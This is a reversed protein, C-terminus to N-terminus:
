ATVPVPTGPQVPAPPAPPDPVLVTATSPRSTVSPGAPPTGTATATNVVKGANSDAQTLTYSATCTEDQGPNLTAAPCSVASLGPLKDNVKVSTLSVNGTNTVVYHYHVTQGPKGTKLSASKKIAIAPHAPITVTATSPASNV